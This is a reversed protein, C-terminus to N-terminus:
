PTRTCAPFVTYTSLKLKVSFVALLSTFPPNSVSIVVPPQVDLLRRSWNVVEAGVVNTDPTDPKVFAPTIVGATAVM